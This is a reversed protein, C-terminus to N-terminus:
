DAAEQIKIEFAFNYLTSPKLEIPQTAWQKLKEGEFDSADAQSNLPAQDSAVVSMQHMETDSGDDSKSLVLNVGTILNQNAM